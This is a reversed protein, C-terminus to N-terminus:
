AISVLGGNNWLQNSGAAPATLPLNGGGLARLGAATISGFNVPPAFPNPVVGPVVTVALGNSWVAGPLLGGPATPYTTTGLFALVGGDNWFTNLPIATGISVVWTYQFPLELAGAEIAAQLVAADEVPTYQTVESVLENFDAGNLDFGDFTAGGVDTRVAEVIRINVQSGTGFTVSIQYTQDINPNSGNVGTLFRMIRRKLWRINFVKGDGKLFHWTIARKYIDDNTAYVNQPGITVQGNFELGNLEYTNFPGLDQNQGSPLIPRSYGYLGWGVWDLLAGSIPAGTYIPLNISNFWDLYQQALANYADIFGQLDDDDDYQRYLYSPIIGLTSTM